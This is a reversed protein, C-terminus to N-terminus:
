LLSTLDLDQCRGEVIGNQGQKHIAIPRGDISGSRRVRPTEGVRLVGLSLHPQSDLVVAGAKALGRPMHGASPATLWDTM